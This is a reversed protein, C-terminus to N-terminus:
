GTPRGTGTSAAPPASGPECPEVPFPLPGGDRTASTCRATLVDGFDLRVVAHATNWVFASGTIRASCADLDLGIRNRQLTTRELVVDGSQGCAVGSRRNGRVTSDRVVLGDRDDGYAFLGTDNREATSGEVLLRGRHYAYGGLWNGVLRSGRVTLSGDDIAHAGTGNGELRVGLVTASSTERAGGRLERDVGARVGSAWGAVRGNRVVVGDAEVLVGTTLTSGAGPGTLRHGNLNLEIGDAALTLGRGDPCVVDAALRVSTTLVAGCPVVVARPPAAVAAPATATTAALLGAALLGARRRRAARTTRRSRLVAGGEGRPTVM